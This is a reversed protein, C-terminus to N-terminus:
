TRQQESPPKPELPESQGRPPSGMNQRGRMFHGFPESPRALYWPPRALQLMGTMLTQTWHGRPRNLVVSVVSSLAFSAHRFQGAPLYVSRWPEVAQVGQGIPVNLERSCLMDRSLQM